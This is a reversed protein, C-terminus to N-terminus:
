GKMYESLMQSLNTKETRDSLKKRGAEARHATDIIDLMCEMVEYMNFYKKGKKINDKQLKYLALNTLKSNVFHQIFEESDKENDLIIQPLMTKIAQVELPNTLPIRKEGSLYKKLTEANTDLKLKTIFKDFTM